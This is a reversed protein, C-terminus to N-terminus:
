DFVMDVLTHDFFSEYLRFPTGTDDPKSFKPINAQEAVNIDCNRFPPPSLM